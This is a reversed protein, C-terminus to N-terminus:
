VDKNLMLIIIYIRMGNKPNNINPLPVFFFLRGLLLGQLTEVKYIYIYHVKSFFDFKM